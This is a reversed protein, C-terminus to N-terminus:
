DSDRSREEAREGGVMAILELRRTDTLESDDPLDDGTREPRSEVEARIRTWVSSSSSLLLGKSKLSSSSSAKSEVNSIPRGYM